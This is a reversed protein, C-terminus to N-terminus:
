ESKLSERVWAYGKEELKNALSASGSKVIKGDLLVHIFDPSLFDLIRKYHTILLIGKEKDRFENIGNAIIKLADIDLGSDTEDLIALQPNLIIMQLIENRKKEGGSFGVNVSRKIFSEDLGVIKIKEKIIKLFTASDIEGKDHYKRISNLAAKLFYMSNVGAIEVPYQFSLFIGECARVEPPMDNIYKENFTIEGSSINYTEKGALVNSLTSKGSGNPGMIVHLEGPKIKLDLGKIIEKGDVDVYLNTIKLM